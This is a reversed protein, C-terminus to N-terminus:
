DIEGMSGLDPLDLDDDSSSDIIPHPHPPPTFQQITGFGPIQFRAAQGRQPPGGQPPGGQPPGVAVPETNLPMGSGRSVRCVPCKNSNEKLWQTVCEPHYYHGCEPLVMVEINDEFDDLCINCATGKKDEIESYLVRPCEALEEETCVVKVDEQTAMGRMARLLNQFVNGLQPRRRPEQPVGEQVPAGGTPLEGAPLGGVTLAAPVFGGNEDTTGIPVDIAGIGPAMVTMMLQGAHRPLGGPAELPPEEEGEPEGDELSDEGDHINESDYEDELRELEGAIADRFADIMLRNFIGSAANPTRRTPPRFGYDAEQMERAIREDDVQQQFAVYSDVFPSPLVKDEEDRLRPAVVLLEIEAYPPVDRWNISEQGPILEQGTNLVLTVTQVAYIYLHLHGLVREVLTMCNWEENIPFSLQKDEYEINLSM